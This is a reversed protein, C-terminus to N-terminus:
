FYWTFNTTNSEGVNYNNLSESWRLHNPIEFLVGTLTKNLSIKDPHIITDYWHLYPNEIIDVNYMLKKNYMILHGNGRM